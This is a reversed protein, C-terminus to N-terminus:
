HLIARRDFVWMKCTKQKQAARPSLVEGLPKAGGQYQIERTPHMKQIRIRQTIVIKTTKHGQHGGRWGMEPGQLISAIYGQSHRIAIGADKIRTSLAFM